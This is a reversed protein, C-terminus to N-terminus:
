VDYQIEIKCGSFQFFPFVTVASDIGSIIQHESDPDHPLMLSIGSNTRTVLLGDWVGVCAALQSYVFWDSRGHLQAADAPLETVDVTLLPATTVGFVLKAKQGDMRVGRFGIKEHPLLKPSFIYSKADASEDVRSLLPDNFVVVSNSFWKRKPFKVASKQESSVAPPISTPSRKAAVPVPKEKVARITSSSSATVSSKSSTLGMPNRHTVPARKLLNESEAFARTTPRSNIVRVPTIRSDSSRDRSRTGDMVGNGAEARAFSAAADNGYHKDPSGTGRHDRVSPKFATERVEVATVDGSLKIFPYFHHNPGQANPPVHKCFRKHAVGRGIDFAFHDYTRTVTVASVIRPDYKMGVTKSDGACDGKSCIDVLHCEQRLIAAKSCTTFGFEFRIGSASGLKGDAALIVSMGVEIERDFYIPTQNPGHTREVKKNNNLFHISDNKYPLVLFGIGEDSHGGAAEGSDGGSTNVSKMLNWADAPTQTEVPSLSLALRSNPRVNKESFSEAGLAADTIRVADANGSLQVFPFVPAGSMDTPIRMIEISRASPSSITIEIVDMKRQFHVISGAHATASVPHLCSRGCCPNSGSCVEKAHGAYKVVVKNSCSTLGFSFTHPKQHLFLNDCEIKLSLIMGNALEDSFYALRAGSKSKRNAQMRDGSIVMNDLPFSTLLFHYDAPAAPAPNLGAARTQPPNGASGTPTRPAPDALSNILNDAVQMMGEARPRPDRVLPSPGSRRRTMFEVADVEADLVVFPYWDVTEVRSNPIWKLYRKRSKGNSVDIILHEVDREVTVYDGPQSCNWLESTFSKGKCETKESCLASIHGEDGLIRSKSCTTAGVMYSYKLRPGSSALTKMAFGVGLDLKRNFFLIRKGDVSTIQARRRDPSIQVSPNPYPTVLFEFETSRNESGPQSAISLRRLGDGIGNDPAVGRPRIPTVAVPLDESNLIKLVETNGNLVVFPYYVRTPSIFSAGDKPANCLKMPYSKTPGNKTVIIDISQDSREISLVAGNRAFPMSQAFSNQCVKVANQGCSQRHTEIKVIDSLDCLTFGLQFSASNQMQIATKGIQLVLKGGVALPRNLHAINDNRAFNVAKRTIVNSDGSVQLNHSDIPLVFAFAQQQEPSARVMNQADSQSILSGNSAAFSNTLAESKSRIPGPAPQPVHSAPIRISRVDQTLILFLISKAFSFTYAEDHLEFDRGDVSISLLDGSLRKICILSQNEPVRTGSGGGPVGILCVVSRGASPCKQPQCYHRAHFQQGTIAAASCSTAGIGITFTNRQNPIRQVILRVSEDEALSRSLYAIRSLDPQSRNNRTVVTGDERVILPAASLSLFRIGPTSLCGSM